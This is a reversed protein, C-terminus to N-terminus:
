ASSPVQDILQLSLLTSNTARMWCQVSAHMQAATQQFQDSTKTSRIEAMQLNGHEDLYRLELLIKM